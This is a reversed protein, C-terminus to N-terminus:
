ETRIGPNGERFAQLLPEIGNPQLNCYFVVRGERRAASNVQSWEQPSQAAAPFSAFTGIMMGLVGRRTAGPGLLMPKSM